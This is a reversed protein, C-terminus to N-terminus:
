PHRAVLAEAKIAAKQAEPLDGESINHCGEAACMQVDGGFRDVVFVAGHDPATVVFRGTVVFAVAVAFIGAILAIWVWTSISEVIAGTGLLVAAAMIWPLAEGLAGNFVGHYQWAVLACTLLVLGALGFVVRILWSPSADQFRTDTKSDTEASM